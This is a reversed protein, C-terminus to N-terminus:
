ILLGVCQLADLYMVDTNSWIQGCSMLCGRATNMWNSLPLPLHPTLILIYAKLYM